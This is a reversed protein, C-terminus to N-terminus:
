FSGRTLSSDGSGIELNKMYSPFVKEGIKSLGSGLSNLNNFASDLLAMAWLLLDLLSKSAILTVGRLICTSFFISFCDACFDIAPELLLRACGPNWFIAAFCGLCNEDALFIPSFDWSCCCDLWVIWM